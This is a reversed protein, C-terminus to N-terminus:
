LNYNSVNKKPYCCISRLLSCVLKQSPICAEVCRRNKKKKKKSALSRDLKYM